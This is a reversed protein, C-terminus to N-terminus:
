VTHAAIMVFYTINAREAMVASKVALLLCQGPQVQNSQAVKGLKLNYYIITFRVIFGFPIM